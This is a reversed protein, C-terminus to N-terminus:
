ASGQGANSREEPREERREEQQVRVPGAARTHNPADGCSVRPAFRYRAATRVDVVGFRIVRPREFPARHSLGELAARCAVFADRDGCWRAVALRTQLMRWIAADGEGDTRMEDVVERPSRDHLESWGLKTGDALLCADGCRRLRRAIRAIAQLGSRATRAMRLGYQSCTEDTTFSCRVSALRGSFFRRYLSILLVLLRQILRVGRRAGVAGRAACVPARLRSRLRRLRVM